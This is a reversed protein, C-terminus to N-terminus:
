VDSIGYNRANTFLSTAANGCHADREAHPVCRELFSLVEKSTSENKHQVVLKSAVASFDISDLSKEGKSAIEYADLISAKKFNLKIM